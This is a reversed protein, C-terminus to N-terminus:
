RRLQSLYDEILADGIHDRKLFRYGNRLGEPHAHLLQTPGSFEHDVVETSGRKFHTNQRITGLEADQM